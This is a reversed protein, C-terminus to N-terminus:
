ISVMKTSYLFYCVSNELYM